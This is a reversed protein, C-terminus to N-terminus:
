GVRPVEEFMVPLFTYTKKGENLKRAIEDNILRQKENTDRQEKLRM